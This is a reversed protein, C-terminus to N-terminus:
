HRDAVPDSQKMRQNHRAPGSASPTEETDSQQIESRFSTTANLKPRFKFAKMFAKM